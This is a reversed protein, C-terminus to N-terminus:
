LTWGWVKIIFGSPSEFLPDSSTQQWDWTLNSSSGAKERERHATWFLDDPPPIAKGQWNLPCLVSRSRIESSVGECVDVSSCSPALSWAESMITNRKRVSIASRSSPLHSFCFRKRHACNGTFYHSDFFCRNCKRKWKLVCVPGSEEEERCRQKGVRNRKRCFFIFCSNSDKKISYIAGHSQEGDARAYWHASERLGSGCPSIPWHIKKCRFRRFFLSHDISCAEQALRVDCTPSFSMEELPSWTPVSQFCNTGPSHESTSARSRSNRQGQLFKNRRIRYWLYFSFTASGASISSPLFDKENQQANNAWHELSKPSTSANIKDKTEKEKESTARRNRASRLLLGSRIGESFQCTSNKSRGILSSTRGIMVMIASPNRWRM